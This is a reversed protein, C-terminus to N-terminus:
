PIPKMKPADIIIYWVTPWFGHLPDNRSRASLWSKWKSTYDRVRPDGCDDINILTRVRDMCGSILAWHTLYLFSGKLEGEVSREPDIELTGADFLFASEIRIM